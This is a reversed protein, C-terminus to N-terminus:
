EKNEDVEICDWIYFERPTVTVPGEYRFTPKTENIVLNELPIKSHFSMTHKASDLCDKESEASVKYFHNSISGNTVVIITFILLWNM